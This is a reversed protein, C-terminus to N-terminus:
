PGYLVYSWMNPTYRGKVCLDYFVLMLMQGDVSLGTFSTYIGQPTELFPGMDLQEPFSIFTNLKKKHGTTRSSFIFAVFLLKRRLPVRGKGGQFILHKFCSSPVPTRRRPCPNGVKKTRLVPMDM